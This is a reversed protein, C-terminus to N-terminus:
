AEISLELGMTLCAIRNLSLPDWLPFININSISKYPPPPSLLPVTINSPHLTITILSFEVRM